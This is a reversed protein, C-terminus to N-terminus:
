VGAAAAARESSSPGANFPAILEPNTLIIERGWRLNLHDYEPNHEYRDVFEKFGSIQDAISPNNQLEYLIKIGNVAADKLIDKKQEDSLSSSDFLQTLEDLFQAPVREKKFHPADDSELHEEVWEKLEPSLWGRKELITIIKPLKKRVQAELTEVGHHKLGDNVYLGYNECKIFILSQEESIKGFFM